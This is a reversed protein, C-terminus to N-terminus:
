DPHSVGPSRELRLFPGGLFSCTATGDSKTGAVAVGLNPPSASAAAWLNDGQPKVNGWWDGSDFEALEAQCYVGLLLKRRRSITFLMSQADQSRFRPMEVTVRDERSRRNRLLSLSHVDKRLTDLAPIARPTYKLEVGAIIETGKCILLDLVFKSKELAGKPLRVVAETYVVFDDALGRRLHHYLSAQLTHESNIRRLAYDDASAQWAQQFSRLVTTTTADDFDRPDMSASSMAMRSM